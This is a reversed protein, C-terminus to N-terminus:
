NALIQGSILIPPDRAHSVTKRPIPAIRASESRHLNSWKGAPLFDVAPDDLALILSLAFDACLHPPATPAGNEDFYVMVPGTGTCLVMEGTADPMTRAIAASQATLAILVALLYGLIHTSRTM